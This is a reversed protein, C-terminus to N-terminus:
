GAARIFNARNKLERTVAELEVLRDRVGECDKKIKIRETAQLAALEERHIQVNQESLDVPVYQAAAERVKGLAEEVQYNNMDVM